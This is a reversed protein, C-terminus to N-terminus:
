GRCDRSPPESGPGGAAASTDQRSASASSVSSPLRRPCTSIARRSASARSSSPRRSRRPLAELPRRGPIRAAVRGLLGPQQGQPPPPMQPAALGIRRPSGEAFGRGLRLGGPRGVQDDMRPDRGSIERSRPGGRNRREGLQGLGEGLGLGEAVRDELQPGALGQAGGGEIGAVGLAGLADQAPGELHGLAAAGIAAGVAQVLQQCHGEAGAVFGGLVESLRALLEGPHAVVEVVIHPRAEITQGLDRFQQLPLGIVRCEIAGQRPYSAPAM